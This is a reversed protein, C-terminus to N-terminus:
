DIWNVRCDVELDEGDSTVIEIWQEDWKRFFEELYQTTVEISLKNQAMDALLPQYVASDFDGAHNMMDLADELFSEDFQEVQIVQKERTFVWKEIIDLSAGDGAYIECFDPSWLWQGLATLNVLAQESWDGKLAITWLQKPKEEEIQLQRGDSIVRYCQREVEPGVDTFESVKIAISLDNDAMEQLLVRHIEEDFGEREEPPPFNNGGYVSQYLMYEIDIGDADGDFEFDVGAKDPICDQMSGTEDWDVLYEATRQLHEIAQEPWNGEM